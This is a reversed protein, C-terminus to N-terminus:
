ATSAYPRKAKATEVHFTGHPASRWCITGPAGRRVRARADDPHQRPSEERDRREEAAPDRAISRRSGNRSAAPKTARLPAARSATEQMTPVRRAPASASARRRGLRIRGRRRAARRSRRGCRSQRHRGHRARRDAPGRALDLTWRPAPQGLQDVPLVAEVAAIQVRLAEPVAAPPEGGATWRTGLQMDPRRRHSNSTRSRPPRPM